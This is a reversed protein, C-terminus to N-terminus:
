FGGHRIAFLANDRTVRRQDLNPGNTREGSGTPDREPKSGQAGAADLTHCGSCREQFLVAGRQIPPPDSKAVDITDGCGAVAATGIVCLSTGLRTRLRTM